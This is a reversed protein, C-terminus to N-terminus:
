TRGYFTFHNLPKNTNAERSQLYNEKQILQDGQAAM